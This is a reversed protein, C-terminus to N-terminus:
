HSKHLETKLKKVTTNYLNDKTKKNKNKVMTNAVVHIIYHNTNQLDHISNVLKVWGCKKVQVLGPDTNRFVNTM